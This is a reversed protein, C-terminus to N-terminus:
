APADKGENIFKYFQQFLAMVEPSDLYDLHHCSIRHDPDRCWGKSIFDRGGQLTWLTACRPQSRAVPGYAFVHTRALFEEPLQLNFKVQRSQHGATVNGDVWEAKTMVDLCRAVQEPTLVNPIHLM